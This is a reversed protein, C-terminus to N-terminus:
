LFFNNFKIVSYIFYLCVKGDKDESCNPAVAHFVHKCKLNGSGTVIIDGISAKGKTRCDKQLGPGALESMRQAIVGRSLDLKTNATCM